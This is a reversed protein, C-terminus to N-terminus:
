MEQYSLQIDELWNLRWCFLNEIETHFNYLDLGCEHLRGSSRRGRFESLEFFRLSTKLTPYTGNWHVSSRVPASMSYELKFKRTRYCLQTARYSQQLDRYSETYSISRKCARWNRLPLVQDTDALSDHLSGCMRCSKSKWAVHLDHAPQDGM